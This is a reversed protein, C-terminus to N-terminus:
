KEEFHREECLTYKVGTMHDAAMFGMRWEVAGEM